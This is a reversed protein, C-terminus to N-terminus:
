TRLLRATFCKETPDKRQEEGIWGTTSDYCTTEEQSQLTTEWFKNTECSTIGRVLGLIGKLDLDSNTM